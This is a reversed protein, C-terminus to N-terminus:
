RGYASLQAQCYALSNSVKEFNSKYVANEAVLQSIGNQLERNVNEFESTSSELVQNRDRLEKNSLELGDIKTKCIDREDKLTLYRQFFDEQMKTKNILEGEVSKLLAQKKELDIKLKTLDQSEGAYKDVVIGFYISAGVLGLAAFVLLLLLLMNVKKTIFSM